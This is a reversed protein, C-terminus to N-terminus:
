QQLFFSSQIHFRWASLNLVGSLHQPFVDAVLFTVVRTKQWKSSQFAEFILPQMLTSSNPPSLRITRWTILRKWGLKRPYAEINMWYVRVLGSLWTYLTCCFCGLHGVWGRPIIQSAKFGFKKNPFTPLIDLAWITKIVTGNTTLSAVCCQELEVSTEPSVNSLPDMTSCTSLQNQFIKGRSFKPTSGFIPTKLGWIM